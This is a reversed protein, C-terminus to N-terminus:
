AKVVEKGQRARRRMERELSEEQRKSRGTM